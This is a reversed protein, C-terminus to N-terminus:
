ATSSFRNAPEVRTRPERWQHSRWSVTSIKVFQSFKNM